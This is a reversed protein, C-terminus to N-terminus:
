HDQQTEQLNGALVGTSCANWDKLVRLLGQPVKDISRKFPVLRAIQNEERCFQTNEARLM